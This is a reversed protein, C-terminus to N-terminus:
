NVYEIQEQIQRPRPRGEIAPPTRGRIARRDNQGQNRPILVLMYIFLVLFVLCFYLMNLHSSKKSILRQLKASELNFTARQVEMEAVMRGGADGALYNGLISSIAGLISKVPIQSVDMQKLTSLASTANTVRGWQEGIALADGHMDMSITYLIYLNICIFSLILMYTFVRGFRQNSVYVLKTLFFALPNNRVLRVMFGEQDRQALANNVATNIHRQMQRQMEEPLAITRNNNGNNIVQLNNNEIGLICVFFEQLLM